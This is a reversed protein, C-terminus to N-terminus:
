PNRDLNIERQSSWFDKQRRGVICSIDSASDMTSRSYHAYLTVSFLVGTTTTTTACGQSAKSNARAANTNRPFYNRAIKRGTGFDAFRRRLADTCGLACTTVYWPLLQKTSVCTWHQRRPQPCSIVLIVCINCHIVNSFWIKLNIDSWQRYLPCNNSEWSQSVMQDTLWENRPENRAQQEGLCLLPCVSVCVVVVVVWALSATHTELLLVLLIRRMKGTFDWGVESHIGLLPDESSSWLRSVHTNLGIFFPKSFM